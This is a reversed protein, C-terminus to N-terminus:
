LSLLDRAKTLAEKLDGITKHQELEKRVEKELDISKLFNKIFAEESVKLTFYLNKDEYYKSLEVSSSLLVKPGFEKEIATIEGQELKFEATIPKHPNEEHQPKYRNYKRRPYDDTSFVTAGTLPNLTSLLELLATKGAENQGVFRTIKEHVLIEGSDEVCKYHDGRYKKLIM